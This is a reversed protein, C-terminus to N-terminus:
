TVENKQEAHLYNLTQGTEIITHKSSLMWEHAIYDYVKFKAVDAFAVKNGDSGIRLTPQQLNSQMVKEMVIDQGKQVQARLMVCTCSFLIFFSVQKM